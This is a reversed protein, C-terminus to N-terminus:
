ALLNEDEMIMRQNEQDWVPSMKRLNSIIEPIVELIYDIDEITTLENISLRLSGHAISHPIGMALLVHSPDLSGSTCASGSSAAIGYLDLMLLISEGEIGEISVNANGPLREEPHGNLRVAPLKLLGDILKNRLALTYEIKKDFDKYAEKVAEGMAVILAVNETGARRGKEQGGGHILNEFRLGRKVYLVGIGKPAHIKHGSISMMDINSDNVDIKVHGMAQVADTHFTIKHKKCVAGIEKIPNITGVENNAYMITVLGTDEKIAKEVQEASVQGYEDVPLYTVEFNHNKELYECTHLVAHHEIATTIIHNKGLKRMRMAYGKIAWNDAESGSAVFFIEKSSKAGIADAIIERAEEIAARPKESVAYISSPNGYYDTLYPLMKEVVKPNVATTAANDAYVARINM